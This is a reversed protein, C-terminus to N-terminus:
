IYGKQKVAKTNRANEVMCHADSIKHKQVFRDPCSKTFPTFLAGIKCAKLYIVQIMENRLLSGNEGQILTEWKDYAPIAHPSDM